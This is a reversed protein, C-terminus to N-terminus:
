PVWGGFHILKVHEAEERSIAVSWLVIRALKLQAESEPCPLRSLLSREKGVVHEPGAHGFKQAHRNEEEDTLVVCIELYLFSTLSNEDYMLCSYM